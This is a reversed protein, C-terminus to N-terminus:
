RQKGHISRGDRRRSSALRRGSNKLCDFRSGQKVRAVAEAWLQDRDRVIAAVDFRNVRVPWFRRAGTSDNLYAASNTTGILIFHRPREIAKRAYAMRAPGDIQRSLMAKLQEVEPTRMGHLDSAEVLWKGLTREILEKAGVNLPLDDSFWEDRACLVRLATSKSFGQRSELVLMEDYKCGPELIRKVAAKLVISSVEKLYCRRDVAEGQTDEAGGYTVLWTDIRSVGDWRLAELYERVPHFANERALSSIVIDFFSKAPRFHHERDIRLWLEDVPGDELHQPPGDGESFLMRDGFVDHSLTVDLREIARRINEQSDKIIVGDKNRTFDSDRGLWKNIEAIVKKGDAGLIKALSPGGKVKKADTDLAAATSEVVRRVDHIETNNCLRSIEEGMIVLDDIAISARLLFGAWALRVDYGFGNHGFRRALLMGIAGLCVRQKFLSPNDFHAPLAFQAGLASTFSPSRFQLAERKGAKEWVSPPVMSQFGLQGSEKAGRIEILTQKDVPDVYKVSALAESLTYWCHSIPKTERGYVFETKPLFQLAIKYAPAFDIDVDHLFKGPAVEVGTMLGVRTHEKFDSLLYKKTTWGEEIPGKQEAKDPWFVVRFNHEFYKAVLEGPTLVSTTALTL